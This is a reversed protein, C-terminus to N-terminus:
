AETKNKAEYSLLRQVALEGQATIKYLFSRKADQVPLQHVLDRAVARYLCQRVDYIRTSASLQTTTMPENRRHLVKLLKATRTGPAVIQEATYDDKNCAALQEVISVPYPVLTM